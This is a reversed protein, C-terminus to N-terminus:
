KAPEIGQKSEPSSRSPRARSMRTTALSAVLHAERASRGLIGFPILWGRGAEAFAQSLAIALNGVRAVEPYYTLM